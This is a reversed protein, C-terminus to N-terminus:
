CAAFCTCSAVAHETQCRHINNASAVFGVWCIPTAACNPSSEYSRFIPKFGPSSTIPLGAIVQWLAPACHQPSFGSIPMLCIRSLPGHILPALVIKAIAPAPRSIGPFSSTLCHLTTKGLLIASCAGFFPSIYAARKMPWLPINILLATLGASQALELWAQINEGAPCANNCPPLLDAYLPRQVRVPGTGKGRTLDVIPTMDGLKAM